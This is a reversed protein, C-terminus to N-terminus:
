DIVENGWLDYQKPKEEKEEKAYVEVPTPEKVVNLKQNLIPITGDREAKWKLNNLYEWKRQLPKLERERWDEFEQQSECLKAGGKANKVIIKYGYNCNWNINKIDSSLAICKDHVYPNTNLKYVKNGDRDRVSEVLEEISYYYGSIFNHELFNKLLWQRPTLNPQEKDLEEDEEFINVKIEEM